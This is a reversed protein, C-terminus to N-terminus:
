RTGHKMEKLKAELTELVNMRGREYWWRNDKAVQRHDIKLQEIQRNRDSLACDIHAAEPDRLVKQGYHIPENCYMCHQYAVNSM